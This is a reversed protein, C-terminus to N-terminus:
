PEISYEGVTDQGIFRIASYSQMGNESSSVVRDATARVDRDPRKDPLSARNVCSVVRAQPAGAFSHFYRPQAEGM